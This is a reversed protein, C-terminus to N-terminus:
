LELEAPSADERVPADPSIRTMLQRYKAAGGRLRGSNMEILYYGVQRIYLMYFATLLGGQLEKSLPDVALKSVFYRGINIPNMASSAIWGVTSAINWWQPANSLMQWQAVTILHSGPVFREFWEELDQSVLQTAALVELVTLSGLPDAANPHYHRAIKSALS